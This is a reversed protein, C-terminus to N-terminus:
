YNQWPHCGRGRNDNANLIEYIAIRDSRYMAAMEMKDIPSRVETRLYKSEYSGLNIRDIMDTRLPLGFLTATPVVFLVLKCLLIQAPRHGVYKITELLKGVQRRRVILNRLTRCLRVLISPDLYRYQLASIIIPVM